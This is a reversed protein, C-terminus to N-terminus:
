EEVSFQGILTPDLRDRFVFTGTQNLTIAEPHGKAVLVEFEGGYSQFEPPLGFVIERKVDEENVFTISDCREALVFSPNAMGNEFTVTHDKQTGQCAGTEQGGVQAIGETQSIRTTVETPTMNHYLNKMIFLSAGITMVIIGATAFFFVINYLPKPGRGLHLFFYMQIAMQIVAIGLITFVLANGSMVKNVVLHYPIFTFILSLIFGVVYSMLAGQEHDAKPKTNHPETSM